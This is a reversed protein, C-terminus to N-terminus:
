RRPAAHPTVPAGADALQQEYRLRNARHDMLFHVRRAQDEGILAGLQTTARALNTRRSVHCLVVASAEWV